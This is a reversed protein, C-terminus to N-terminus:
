NKTNRWQGGVCIDKVIDAGAGTIASALLTDPTWGALSPHALDLTILDALRGPEIAGTNLGLAAAGNLSGIRQLQRAIDNDCAPTRTVGRKQRGLRQVFELWRLEEFPDIRINSDSGICISDPRAMMRGVEAIGDGLNGETLPCLCVKAGSKLYTDLRPSVAHTCHIATFRPGLEVNDLLWEMPTRGLAAQVEEIEKVQEEIHVHAVCGRRNAERCLEKLDDPPVARLSHPAIALTQTRQDLSASIADVQKLFTKVVPTSFRLQGGALPRNVGGTKYYCMLLALRIGVEAAAEVIIRDLEFDLRAPAVHHVYHFEGVTTYGSALMERFAQVTVRRLEDPTLKEVLAYMAERWSWFDGMGEPYTEGHGRLARQFAHSHVNVFGPLLARGPLRRISSEPLTSATGKEASGPQAITVSAIQGSADIGIRAHPVFRGDLLTLEPALIQKLNSM